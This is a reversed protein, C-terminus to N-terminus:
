GTCLQYFRLPMLSYALRIEAAPHVEMLRYYLNKLATNAECRILAQRQDRNVAGVESLDTLDVSFIDHWNYIPKRFM